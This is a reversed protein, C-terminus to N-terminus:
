ATLPDVTENVPMNANKPEAYSAVFIISDVKEHLRRLSSEMGILRGRIEQLMELLSADSPNEAPQAMASLLSVSKCFLELWVYPSTNSNEFVLCIVKKCMRVWYFISCTKVILVHLTLSCRLRM